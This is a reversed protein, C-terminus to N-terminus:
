GFPCSGGMELRARFNGQAAAGDDDCEHEVRGNYSPLPAPPHARRYNRYFRFKSTEFSNWCCFHKGATMTKGLGPDGHLLFILGKGKGRVIDDFGTFEDDTNFSEVLGKILRKKGQEFELFSFPNEIWEIEDILDVQVLAWLKKELLFAYITSPCVLYDLESLEKSEGDQLWEPLNIMRRM